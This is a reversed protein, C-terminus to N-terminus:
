APRGPRSVGLVIRITRSMASCTGEMIEGIGIEMDRAGTLAPSLLEPRVTSKAVGRCVTALRAGSDGLPDPLTSSEPGPCPCEM